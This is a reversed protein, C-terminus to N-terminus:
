SAVYFWRNTSNVIAGLIINPTYTQYTNLFVIKFYTPIMKATYIQSNQITKIVM